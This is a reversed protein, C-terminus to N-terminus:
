LCILTSDYNRGTLEQYIPFVVSEICMKKRPDDTISHELLFHHVFQRLGEEYFVQDYAKKIYIFAYDPLGLWYMNSKEPMIILEGSEKNNIEELIKYIDKRM